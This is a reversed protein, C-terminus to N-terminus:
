EQPVRSEIVSLKVRVCGKPLRPKGPSAVFHSWRPAGRGYCPLAWGDYDVGWVARHTAPKTTKETM